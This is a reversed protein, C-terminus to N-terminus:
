LIQTLLFTLKEVRLALIGEIKEQPKADSLFSVINFQIPHSFIPLKTFYKM